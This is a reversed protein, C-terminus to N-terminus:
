QKSKILEINRLPPMGKGGGLPTEKTQQSRRRRKASVLVAEKTTLTPM